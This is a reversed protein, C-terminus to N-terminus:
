KINIKIASLEPLISQTRKNVNTPKDNAHNANAFSSRKNQNKKEELKNQCSLKFFFIYIFM